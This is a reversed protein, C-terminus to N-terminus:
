ISAQIKSFYLNLSSISEIIITNGRIMYEDLMSSPWTFKENKKKHPFLLYPINIIHTIRHYEQEAHVNFFEFDCTSTFIRLKFFYM